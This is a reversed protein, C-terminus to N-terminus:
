SEGKGEKGEKMGLNFMGLNFLDDDMQRYRGHYYGECFATGGALIFANTWWLGSVLLAVTLLMFFYCRRKFRDYQWPKRCDSM